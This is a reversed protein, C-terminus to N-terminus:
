FDLCTGAGLPFVRTRGTKHLREALQNRAGAGTCHGAYLTRVQFEEMLAAAQEVQLRTEEPDADGMHLGGLVVDIREKGASDRLTYLTNGLGAHCCGLIAVTRGSAELLLAADDRVGDPQAGARDLFFDRVNERLGPLRKMPCVMRLGPALATPGTVPNFRPLAQPEMVRPLGIARPVGKRIAYRQLLADPHAFVPGEFGAALLAPLGGTHDYHGHSLALGHAKGPDVGLLRANRLFLDSQGTDWLWQEGSDLEVLCSLGHEAACGAAGPENEVLVLIRTM